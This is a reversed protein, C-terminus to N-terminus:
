SRDGLDKNKEVRIIYNCTEKPLADPRSELNGMGWNYAALALRVNGQYRDLLQRMYRSGAMINQAPDFPDTVGLEAATDPMLQMLGQAGAPSVAKSNGGSEVAIIAKILAPDLHYKRASESIIGEISQSDQAIHGATDQTIRGTDLARHATGQSPHVTDQSSYATGQSSYATGQSPHVAEQTMPLIDRTLPVRIQGRQSVNEEEVQSSGTGGAGAEQSVGSVVEQAAEAGAEQSFGAGAGEAQSIGTRGIQPEGGQGGRSNSDWQHSLLTSWELSSFAPSPFVPSPPPYLCSEGTESESLVAELTRYLLEIAAMELPKERGQSFLSDQLIRNFDAGAGTKVSAPSAQAALSNMTKQDIRDIM